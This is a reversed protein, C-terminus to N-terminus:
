TAAARWEALLAPLDVLREITADAEPGEDHPSRLWVTRTGAARGVAVDSAKRDGVMVAAAPQVDLAHLAEHLMRPAPKRSGAELSFRFVEIHPAIGWRVLLERYFDGPLAVNSVLGVRLGMARLAALTEVAGPMPALSGAYPGFWAALLERPQAQAGTAALLRELHPMWDAERQRQYRRAYEIEWPAFLLQDLQAADVRGGRARLLTLMAERGARDHDGTPLGAENGMVILVGGMDLVAADLRPPHLTAERVQRTHLLVESM